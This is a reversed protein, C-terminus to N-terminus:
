SKPEQLLKPLVAIHRTLLAALFQGVQSVNLLLPSASCSGSLQSILLKGLYFV